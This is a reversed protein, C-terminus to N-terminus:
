RVQNMRTAGADRAPLETLIGERVAVMAAETRSKVGLKALIRSIHTKVTEVGIGLHRAILKNPLGQALLALIERQRATLVSGSRREGRAFESMTQVMASAVVPHLTLEGAAVRRLAQVFEDFHVTTLTFGDAGALLAQEIRRRDVDHSMVLVKTSPSSRKLEALANTGARDLISVDVLAVAPRLRASLGVAEDGDDTHAVVEFGDESEIARVLAHCVLRHPQVVLVGLTHASGGTPSSDPM